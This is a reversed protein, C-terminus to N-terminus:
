LWDRWPLTAGAAALDAVATSVEPLMAVEVEGLQAIAAANSRQMETPRAPWPTLVVARVNLGANRAVAITLLTHNITGLGPRAAVVVPLALEAALDLVAYDPALPVLLGGVGEAILM